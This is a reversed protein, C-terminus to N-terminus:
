DTDLGFMDAIEVILKGVSHSVCTQEKNVTQDSPVAPQGPPPSNPTGFIPEIKKTKINYFVKRQLMDVFKQINAPLRKQNLVLQEKKDKLSMNQLIDEESESFVEDEEMDDLDDESKEREM